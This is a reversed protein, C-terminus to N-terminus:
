PAASAVRLTTSQQPLFYNLSPDIARVFDGLRQDAASLAEGDAVTTIVRILAGDTRNKTLSNWFIYGKVAFENRVVYGQQLFWYYVLVRDKEMSLVARNVKLPLGDVGVGKLEHDGFEDQRWGGGPLCARPSHVSVGKRQSEYYAIWLDVPARDDRAYVAAVHDTVKLQALQAPDPATFQGRWDVVRLPFGALSAREPVVDEPRGIGASVVTAAVVLVALATVPTTLRPRAFLALLDGAPPMDLGFAAAFKQGNWRAFLLIELFLLGLCAMFVVWGEFLHLFGEAQASGFRDVLIGIVGIRFSNMLVTIPIASLFLCVRQWTRGHFLVASLFGFSMLPFLYRLGSCAEVVQLQYVGLDIVNGQLLAPVGFARIVAVGLASSILQLEGSLRFEIVDPLPVMFLLYVLATWILLAGRTGLVTWAIGWIALVFAYHTITYVASLEGLLLLLLAVLVLGVGALTPQWTQRGLDAAKLWVLYVAVVPIFYAHNYEPSLWESFVMQSLGSRFLLLLGLAIVGAAIWPGRASGPGPAPDTIAQLPKEVAQNQLRPARAIPRSLNHVFGKDSLPLPDCIEPRDAQM